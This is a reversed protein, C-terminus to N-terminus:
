INLRIISEPERLFTVAKSSVSDDTITSSEHLTMLITSTAEGLASQAPVPWCTLWSVVIRVDMHFDFFLSFRGLPHGFPILLTFNVVFGISTTSPNM